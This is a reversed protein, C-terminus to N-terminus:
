GELVATARCAGWWALAAIALFACIYASENVVGMLIGQCQGPDAPRAPLVGWTSLTIDNVWTKVMSATIHIFGVATLAGAALRVGGRHKRSLRWAALLLAAAILYAVPRLWDSVIWGKEAWNDTINQAACVTLLVLLVAWQGFQGTFAFAIWTGGTIFPFMMEPRSEPFPGKWAPSYLFAAFTALAILGLAWTTAPSATGGFGEDDLPRHQRETIVWGIAIIFGAIFGCSTEFVSWWNIWPLVPNGAAARHVTWAHITQAAPMAIAGGLIGWLGIRTTFVDKKVVAAYVLLGVMGLWLGGWYEQRPEWDPKGKNVFDSFYILPLRQHDPDFPKNLLLYGVYFLVTMGATIGLVEWPSYRKYGAAMGMFLAGLGFWMGSKVALGLFGWWYTHEWGTNYMLGNTQGYTITGGFGTAIAGAAGILLARQRVQEHRSCMAVSLGILAGAIYAGAEHGFQGRIGWGLWGGLAPLLLCLWPPMARRDKPESGTPAAGEEASSMTASWDDHARRDSM